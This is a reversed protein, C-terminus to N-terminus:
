SLAVAVLVVRLSGVRAAQRAGGANVSLAEGPPVRSARWAPLFGVLLVSVVSVAMTFALVPLNIAIEALRPTDPAVLAVAAALVWTALLGAAAAGAAVLVISEALLYRVIAGLASRVALNGQRAAARALCLSGVNVCAVLLVVGVVAFLVLLGRRVDGVIEDELSSVSARVGKSFKDWTELRRSIVTAEVRAEDLTAGGKLRAIMQYARFGPMKTEGPVSRRPVWLVVDRAPFIFAPPMVGVITHPRGDLMVTKGLPDTAGFRRRRLEHSLVVVTREADNPGLVRGVLPMTGLTTFFGESVLCARAFEPEGRGTITYEVSRYIAFHELRRSTDRWEDFATESTREPLEIPNHSRTATVSVLRDPEAFPLPKLLVGYVLSFIATNAGIGLALTVITTLTFAPTRTPSRLALRLEDIM